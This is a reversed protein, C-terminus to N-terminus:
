LIRDSSGSQVSVSPCALRLVFCVTLLINTESIMQTNAGVDLQAQLRLSRNQLLDVGRQQQTFMNTRSQTGDLPTEDVLAHSIQSFTDAQCTQCENHWSWFHGFWLNVPLSKVIGFRAYDVLHILIAQSGSVHFDNKGGLFITIQIHWMGSQSERDARCTDKSSVLSLGTSLGLWSTQNNIISSSWPHAMLRKQPRQSDSCPGLPFVPNKLRERLQGLPFTAGAWLLGPTSHMLIDTKTEKWLWHNTRVWNTSTKQPFGSQQTGHCSTETRWKWQRM